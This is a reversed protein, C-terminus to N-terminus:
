ESVTLPICFEMQILNTFSLPDIVFLICEEPSSLDISKVRWDPYRDVYNRSLPICATETGIYFHCWDWDSRVFDYCDRLSMSM